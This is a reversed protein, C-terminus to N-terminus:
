VATSRSMFLYEYRLFQLVMRSFEHTIYAYIQFMDLYERKPMKRTCYAVHVAFWEDQFCDHTTFLPAISRAHSVRSRHSSFLFYPPLIFLTYVIFISVKTKEMNEKDLLFEMSKARYPDIETEQIGGGGVNTSYSLPAVQNNGLNMMSRAKAVASSSMDKNDTESKNKGFNSLHTERLFLIEGSDLECAGPPLLADDTDIDVDVDTDRLGTVSKSRYRENFYQAASKWQNDSRTSSYQSQNPDFPEYDKMTGRDSMVSSRPYAARNFKNGYNRLQSKGLIEEWKKDFEQSCKSMDSKNYPRNVLVPSVTPMNRNGRVAQVSTEMDQLDPVSMALRQRDEQAKQRFREFAQRLNESSKEADELTIPETKGQGQSQQTALFHKRAAVLRARAVPSLHKSPVPPRPPRSAVLNSTFARSPEPQDDKTEAEVVEVVTASPEREPVKVPSPSEQSHRVPKKPVIVVSDTSSNKSNGSSDLDVQPKIKPSTKPSEKLNKVPQVQHSKGSKGFSIRGIGLRKWISTEPKSSNDSGFVSKATKVSGANTPTAPLTASKQEIFKTPFVQAAPKEAKTLIQDSAGNSMVPMQVRQVGQGSNETSTVKVRQPQESNTPKNVMKKNNVYKLIDEIHETEPEVYSERWNVESVVPSFHVNRV